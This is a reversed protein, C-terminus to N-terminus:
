DPLLRVAGLLESAGPDFVKWSVGRTIMCSTFDPARINIIWLKRVCDRKEPNNHIYHLKQWLVAPSWLPVSLSNREWVQYRRDKANVLLAHKGAGDHDMNRLIAHATFKLFDRQVNERTNEGIMQWILHFHTSMIVFAYVSVRGNGDLFRLSEIIIEKMADDRLLPLWNLRTVTIFDPHEKAIQRIESVPM